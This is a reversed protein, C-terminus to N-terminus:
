PLNQLEFVNKCQLPPSSKLEQELTSACESAYHHGPLIITSPAFKKIKQLSEFLQEDSGTPLDTRGCDRIFLTDGTLLYGPNKDIYYCVGEASHGPTKHATVKTDGIQVQTETNSIVPLEPFKKQLAPVGAVHDHHLHTLLCYALTFGHQDLARLPTEIDKQPDVIAAKMKSWDLILYVFNRMTGLEFQAIPENKILGQAATSAFHQPLATSKSNM